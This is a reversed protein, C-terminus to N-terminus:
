LEFPKECASWAGLNERRAKEQFEYFVEEFTNNPKYVVARGFGLKVLEANVSQDIKTTNKGDLFIFRLDRGYRDISEKDKILQIKRNTLLETLFQTAENGFCMVPTNPKKTEPTDVNLLRITRGDDLVVTDGDVVRNVIASEVNGAEVRTNGDLYETFDKDLGTYYKITKQIENNSGTALIIFAMISIFFSKTPKTKTM